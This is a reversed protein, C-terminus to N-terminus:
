PISRWVFRSCVSRTSLPIDCSYIQGPHVRADEDCKPDFFAVFCGMAGHSVQCKMMAALADKSWTDPSVITLGLDFALVSSAREDASAQVKAKESLGTSGDGDGEVDQTKALPRAVKPRAVTM